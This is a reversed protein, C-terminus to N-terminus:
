KYVTLLNKLLRYNLRFIYYESLLVGGGDGEEGKINVLGGILVRILMLQM